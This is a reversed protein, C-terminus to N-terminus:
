KDKINFPIYKINKLTLIPQKEKNGICLDYMEEIVAYDNYLETYFEDDESLIFELYRDQLELIEPCM